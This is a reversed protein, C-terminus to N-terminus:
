GDRTAHVRGTISAAVTNSSTDAVNQATVKVATFPPIIIDSVVAGVRADEHRQQGFQVSGVFDDNFYLRMRYDDSAGSPEVYFVAWSAVVYYAGTAGKVLDAETNAVSVAGSYAYVHRGIISLGRGVVSTGSADSEPAGPYRGM